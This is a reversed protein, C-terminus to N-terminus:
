NKKPFNLYGAIDKLTARFWFLEKGPACVHDHGLLEMLSDSTDMARAAPKESHTIASRRASVVVGTPHSSATHNQQPRTGVLEITDHSAVAAM